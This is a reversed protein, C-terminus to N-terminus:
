KKEAELLKEATELNVRADAFGPSVRLAERFYGAAEGVKGSRALAIGLNNMAEASGPRARLAERFERAAEDMKGERGYAAGLNNRADYFDPKIRVAERFLEVAEATRGEEALALGLNNLTEHSLPNIRLAERYQMVAEDRRGAGSLANGLDNRSEFIDPNVRVSEELYRAAEAFRNKSLLLRGLRNMADTYGPSCELAKEFSGIAEDDRGSDALAVAYSYHSEPERPSIRIAEAFHPMAEDTRGLKHLVIALNNHALWNDSTVSAARGFLTVSDKWYRVQLHSLVALVVLAMASAAAVATGAAPTREAAEGALWAVVIFVGVLPVYTYRDAMAQSGVQVLGIVPVLTGLYWLWGTVLYRRRRGFYFAAATAAALLIGSVLAAAVPAGGPRIPYYVALGSPFVMKQLYTGYSVVANLTRQALSVAQLSTVAGAEKQASVTTFVFVPILAFLPVKELILTKLRAPYKDDSRVRGQDAGKEQSPWRGLPWYDLLLLTFPLTVIMAKSLLGALFAFFVPLYRKVSPKEAYRAYALMCLFWFLACLIDKRESVWAVSEVHLPHLAFLGAVFGSKWASGTMRSLAAFLLLAAALHLLLSTFHHGRAGKGYLQSDIMHSIMTVPFYFGLNKETFAWKLNETSLGSIVHPNGAVFDDDDFDLFGCSRVGWFAALTAVALIACVAAAVRSSVRPPSADSKKPAPESVAATKRTRNRENMYPREKRFPLHLSFLFRQCVPRDRTRAPHKGRSQNKVHRSEKVLIEKKM